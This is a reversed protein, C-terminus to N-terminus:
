QVIGTTTIQKEILPTLTSCLGQAMAHYGKANHHGDIQWYYDKINTSNINLSDAYFRKLDLTTIASLTDNGQLLEDVNFDYTNELIENKDPFIMQICRFSHEHALRNYNAILKQADTIATHKNQEQEEKNFFTSDYGKFNMWARFLHSIEYLGMWNPNKLKTSITSDPKFREMGGYCLHDFLLDNASFSVVVFDPQYKLLRDELKKYEFWPDSGCRGANMVNIKNSPFKKQVLQQLVNPYTSDFAAGDGETFSDGLTLIRIENSDKKMTWEKDPLGEANTLRPFAYENEFALTIKQHPQHIMYWTKQTRELPNVFVGERLESYTTYKGDLRLKLEAIYLGILLGFLLLYTKQIVPQKFYGFRHLLYGLGLFTTAISTYIWLIAHWHLYKLGVEMIWYLRFFSYIVILSLLFGVLLGKTFDKNM